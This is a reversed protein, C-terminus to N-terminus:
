LKFLSWNRILQNDRAGKVFDLPRTVIVLLVKRLPSDLYVNNFTVLM